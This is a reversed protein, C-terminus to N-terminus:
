IRRNWAEIVCNETCMFDGREIRAGCEKCEITYYINGGVNMDHRIAKGGCFPCSKLEINNM